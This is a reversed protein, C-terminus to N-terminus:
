SAPGEPMIVQGAVVLTRAAQVIQAEAVQAVREMLVLPAAVVVAM